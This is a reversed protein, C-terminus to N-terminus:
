PLMIRRLLDEAAVSMNYLRFLILTSLGAALLFIDTASVRFIRSTEIRGQFGRSLMAQYIRESREITRIFFAGILSVFSRIGLGRSGFSRVDRARKVKMAEEILVFIYRYIFLLQLVFIEPIGLRQLARCVDPFSTTAILLLGASVTLVFKIMISIFSVWGASIETSGINVFTATDLLPNFVAIFFAFPSVIVIKRVLFGAPIDALSLVLVPFLFFPFLESLAYKSFSVVTMIFALTFLLKLRPDLRHIISDRYSLTDLYGLNFYAKDFDM